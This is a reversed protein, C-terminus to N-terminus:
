MNGDRVASMNWAAATGSPVYLTNHLMDATFPLNCVHPMM